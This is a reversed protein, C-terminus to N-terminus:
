AMSIGPAGPFTGIKGPPRAPRGGRVAPPSSAAGGAAPAVSLRQVMHAFERFHLHRKAHKVGGRFGGRQGTRARRAANSMEEDIKEASLELNLYSVIKPLSEVDALGPLALAAPM